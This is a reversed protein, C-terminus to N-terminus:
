KKKKTNWFHESLERVKGFFLFYLFFYEACLFLPSVYSMAKHISSFFFRYKHHRGTQKQSSDQIQITFNWESLSFRYLHHYSIKKLKLFFHFRRESWNLQFLIFDSWIHVHFKERTKLTIRKEDSLQQDIRRRKKRRKTEYYSLVLLESCRL